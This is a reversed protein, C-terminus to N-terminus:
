PRYLRPLGLRRRERMVQYGRAGRERAGVRFLSSGRLCVSVGIRADRRYGTGKCDPCAANGKM